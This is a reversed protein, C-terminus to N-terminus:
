IAVTLHLTTLAEQFDLPLPATISIKKQSFPHIFSVKWAHLLSRRAVFDCSFKKNAYQIDGLIPHGMESMHVRIQHTRGTKLDCLVLSSNKAKSMLSWHTIAVEGRIASGYLTQGQYGGKPALKNHIVGSSSFFKGDCIALYLKEVQRKAFLGELAQKAKEHKALLLVGSTEKDLRHVLKWSRDPLFPDKCVSGVKKNIIVLDEDEYLIEPTKSPTQALSIDFEVIEGKSLKYSSFTEIRNGIRCSKKAIAEKLTKLSFAGKGKKHLFSLLSLGHEEDSVTYRM